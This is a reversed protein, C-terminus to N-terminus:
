ARKRRLLALAGFGLMCITAPEPVATVTTLSNDEDWSVIVHSLDYYGYGSLQNGTVYGQIATAKSGDDDFITMTGGTINMTSGTTMSFEDDSSNGVQILGANLSVTGTGTYSAYNWGVYFSDAATITGGNMTLTGTGLRGILVSTGATVTASGSMTLSGTGTTAYGVGVGATAAISASGSMTVSGTGYFGIDFAKLNSGGVTISSDGSMNITGEHTAGYGVIFDFAGTSALSGGTMTLTAVSSGSVDAGVWIKTHSATVTSDILPQTVSADEVRVIDGTGPYTDPNSTENWNAATTWLNNAGGGDWYYTLALANGCMFISIVFVICALKRCM